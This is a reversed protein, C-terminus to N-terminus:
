LQIAFILLINKFFYFKLHFPFRSNTRRDPAALSAYSTWQTKIKAGHENQTKLGSHPWCSGRRGSRCATKGFSAPHPPCFFEFINNNLENGDRGNLLWPEADVRARGAPFPSLCLCLGVVFMMPRASEMYHPVRLLTKDQASNAQQVIYSIIFHMM